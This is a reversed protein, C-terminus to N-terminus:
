HPRPKASNGINPLALPLSFVMPFAGKAHGRNTVTLVYRGAEAIHLACAQMATRCVVLNGPGVMVMVGDGDGYSDPELHVFLDGAALIVVQSQSGNPGVDFGLTTPVHLQKATESKQGGVVVASAAGRPAHAPLPQAVPRGAAAGTVKDGGTKAPTAPAAPFALALAGLLAVVACAGRASVGRRSRGLGSGAVM